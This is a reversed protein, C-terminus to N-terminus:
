KTEVHIKPFFSHSFWLLKEVSLLICDFLVKCLAVGDELVDMFNDVDIDLQPHYLRHLWEALDEKMAILYEESSKFPRFPRPEMLVVEVASGEPGLGSEMAICELRSMISLILRFHICTYFFYINVVPFLWEYHWTGLYLFVPAREARVGRQM